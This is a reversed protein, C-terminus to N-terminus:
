NTLSVWINKEEERGRKKDDTVEIKYCHLLLRVFSM